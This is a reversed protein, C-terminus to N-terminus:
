RRKCTWMSMAMMICCTIMVIILLRTIDLSHTFAALDLLNARTSSLQTSPEAIQYEHAQQTKFGFKSTTSTSSASPTASRSKIFWPWIDMLWILAFPVLFIACTCFTKVSDAIVLLTLTKTCVFCCYTCICGPVNESDAFEMIYFYRGQGCPISYSQISLSLTVDFFKEDM